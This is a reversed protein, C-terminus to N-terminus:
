ANRRLAIAKTSFFLVRELMGCTEEMGVKQGHIALSETVVHGLSGRVFARLLGKAAFLMVQTNDTIAGTLGYALAFDVIGSPGFKAEIAPWELFKVPAGLADGIAGGLLCGKIRDLRDM